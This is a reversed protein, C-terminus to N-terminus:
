RLIKYAQMAARIARGSFSVIALRRNPTKTDKSQLDIFDLYKRYSVM